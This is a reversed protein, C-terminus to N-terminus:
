YRGPFTSKLSDILNYHPYFNLVERALSTDAFSIASDGLRPAKIDVKFEEGMLNMISKVVQLVSQGNGTGLNLVAPWNGAIDIARLHAMAIDRVDIYDRVATGDKTPYNNGYIEPFNGDNIRAITRPVLNDTSLDRLEECSTGIVNFYRFILTEMGLKESLLQISNEANLKSFGYPSKPNLLTTEKLGEGEDTNMYVAATSSFMFKEVQFKGALKFLQRTGIFNVENYLDPYNVSEEVSKLGALHIVGYIKQERFIEAMKDLARIDAIHVKLQESSSISKLYNVRDLNSNFLSDVIVLKHNHRILVEAVHAGIYGAGGTVLWTM